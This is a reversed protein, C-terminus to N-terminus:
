KRKREKWNFHSEILATAIAQEVYCTVEESPEDEGIFSFAFLTCHTAEHVLLEVDAIWYQETGDPMLVACRPQDDEVFRYTEALMHSGTDVIRQGHRTLFAEYKDRSHFLNLRPIPIPSYDVDCRM